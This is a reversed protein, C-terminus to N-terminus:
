DDSLPNKAMPPETTMVTNGMAVGAICALDECPEVQFHSLATPAGPHAWAIKGNNRAKWFATKHLAYEDVRPIVFYTFGADYARQIKMNLVKPLPKFNQKQPRRLYTGAQADYLIEYPKGGTYTYSVSTLGVGGQKSTALGGILAVDNQKVAVGVVASYAALAVCANMDDTDDVNNLWDYAPDPMDIKMSCLPDCPAPREAFMGCVALEAFRLLQLRKRSPEKKGSDLVLWCDGRDPFDALATKNVDSKGPRPTPAAMLRLPTEAVVTTVQSSVGKSDTSPYLCQAAGVRFNLGDAHGHYPKSSDEADGATAADESDDRVLAVEGENAAALQRALSINALVQRDVSHRLLAATAAVLIVAVRM